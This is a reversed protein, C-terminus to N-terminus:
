EGKMAGSEGRCRHRGRGVNGAARNSKKGGSWGEGRHGWEGVRDSSAASTRKEQASRLSGQGVSKLERPKQDGM